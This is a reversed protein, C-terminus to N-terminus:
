RIARSGPPVSEATTTSPQAQWISLSMSPLAGTLVVAAAIAAVVAPVPRRRISPM